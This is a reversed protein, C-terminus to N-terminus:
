ILLRGSKLVPTNDITLTPNLVVFDQHSSVRITGGFTHNDGFAIHITGM